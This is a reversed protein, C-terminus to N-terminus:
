HQELFIMDRELGVRIVFGIVNEEEIWSDSFWVKLMTGNSEGMGAEDVDKIQSVNELLFISISKLLNNRKETEKTITNANGM